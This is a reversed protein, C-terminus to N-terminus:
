FRDGYFKVAFFAEVITKNYVFSGYLFLFIGINIISGLYSLFLVSPVIYAVLVPYFGLFLTDLLSYRGTFRLILIWASGIGLLIYMDKFDKDFVGSSYLYGLDYKSLVLIASLLIMFLLNVFATRFFLEVPYLLTTLTLGLYVYILIEYNTFIDM